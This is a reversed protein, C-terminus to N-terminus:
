KTLDVCIGVHDSTYVSMGEDEDAGTGKLEDASLKELGLIHYSQAKLGKALVYDLRRIFNKNPKGQTQVGWDGYTPQELSGVPGVSASDVFGADILLGVETRSSINTDGCLVAGNLAPESLASLAERLQSARHHLNLDL